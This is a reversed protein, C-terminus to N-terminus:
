RRGPVGGPVPKGGVKEAKRPNDVGGERHMKKFHNIEEENMKENRYEQTVKFRADESHTAWNSTQM